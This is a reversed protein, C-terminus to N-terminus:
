RCGEWCGELAKIAVYIDDLGQLIIEQVRQNTVLIAIAEDTLNLGAEMFQVQLDIFDKVMPNM